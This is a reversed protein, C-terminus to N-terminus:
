SQYIGEIHEKLIRKMMLMLPQDESQSFRADIEALVEEKPKRSENGGEISVATLDMNEIRRIHADTLVTGQPLLVMGSDNMIPKALKMGPKLNAVTVSAVCYGTGIKTVIIACCKFLYLWLLLAVAKGVRECFFLGEAM